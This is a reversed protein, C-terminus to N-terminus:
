VILLMGIIGAALAALGPLARRALAAGGVTTVLGAKFVLNALVALSIAFVAQAADLKDLSFLRLSSLTIADVDTLGSALAVAYLGRSGAIDQLWASLLLVLAYLAGFSIAVRIETPNSVQPMPVTGGAQAKGHRWSLFAAALGLLLAPGFVVALPLAIGPAIIGALLLLRLLVVINAIVIVITSTPVSAADARAYRSFVMTTATSSVLGGLGGAILAGHGEGVLRLAAYGALSVGSILVVMWWVQHPNFAGYPGYNHDPLIPLVIFTLAAFQLISILDTRTLSKTFGHLESKFYLLATAAIGLMTALTGFGHWVAVGLGYSIMLAVVTTTGPDGNEQPDIALAAIMMAGVVFLGAAVMWGSATHQAILAVLTGFVAVLGFTRLGAKTDAHRERELGMLLGIALSTAFAQLQQLLDPDILPM